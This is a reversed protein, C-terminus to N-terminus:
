GAAILAETTESLGFSAIPAVPPFAFSGYQPRSLIQLFDYALTSCLMFEQAKGDRDRRAGDRWRRREDGRLKGDCLPMVHDSFGGDCVCDEIPDDVIRVADGKLSVAHSPLFCWGVQGSSFVAFDIAYSKL